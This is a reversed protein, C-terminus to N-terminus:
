YSFVAAELLLFVTEISETVKKSIWFLMMSDNEFIGILIKDSM